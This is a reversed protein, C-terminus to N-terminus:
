GPMSLRAFVACSIVANSMSVRSHLGTACAARRHRERRIRQYTKLWLGDGTFHRDLIPTFGEDRDANKDTGAPREHM